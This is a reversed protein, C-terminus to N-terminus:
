EGRASLFPRHWGDSWLRIVPAEVDGFGHETGDAAHAGEAGDEETLVLRIGLQRAALLARAYTAEPTRPGHLLLRLQQVPSLGLDAPTMASGSLALRMQRGPDLVIGADRLDNETVVTGDDAPLLGSVAQAGDGNSDDTLQGILWSDFGAAVADADTTDVATLWPVDGPADDPRRSPHSRLADALAIALDKGDGTVV